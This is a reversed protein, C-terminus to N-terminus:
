SILALEENEEPPCRSSCIREVTLFHAGLKLGNRPPLKTDRAKKVKKKEKKDDTHIYAYIHENRSIQM